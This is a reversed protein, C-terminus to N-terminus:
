FFCEISCLLNVHKCIVPDQLNCLKKKMAGGGETKQIVSLDNVILSTTESSRYDDERKLIFWIEEMEEIFVFM